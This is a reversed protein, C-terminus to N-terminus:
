VTYDSANAVGGWELLVTRAGSSAILGQPVKLSVGDDSQNNGCANVTLLVFLAFVLYLNSKFLSIRSFLAPISM